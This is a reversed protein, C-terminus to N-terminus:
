FDTYVFAIEVDGFYLWFMVLALLILLYWAYRLVRRGFMTERIGTIFSSLRSQLM